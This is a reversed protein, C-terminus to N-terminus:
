PQASREEKAEDDLSKLKPFIAKVQDSVSQKGDLISDILRRPNRAGCRQTICVGDLVYDFSHTHLQFVKVGRHEFICPADNEYFEPKPTNLDKAWPNRYKNKM